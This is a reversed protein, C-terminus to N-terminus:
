MPLQLLEPSRWEELARDMVDAAPAFRRPRVLCYTTTVELSTHGLLKSVVEVAIGRDIAETAFSHRLTHSGFVPIGLEGAVVRWLENVTTGQLRRVRSHYRSIWLAPDQDDRTALWDRVAAQAVQGVPVVREKRGKGMLRVMTGVDARDLTLAESIRAGTSVLFLWLSRARNWDWPAWAEVAGVRRAPPVREGFYAALRAFDHESLPRPLQKIRRPYTVWRPLRGDLTDDVDVLWTLFVRAATAASARTNIAWDKDIHGDQWAELSARTIQAPHTIGASYLHDLLDRCGHLYGRVTTTLPSKRQYHKVFQQLQHQLDPGDVRRGRARAQHRGGHERRGGGALAWSSDLSM